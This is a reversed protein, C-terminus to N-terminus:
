TKEWIHRGWLPKMDMIWCMQGCWRQTGERMLPEFWWMRRGCHRCTVRVRKCRWLLMRSEVVWWWRRFLVLRGTSPKGDPTVVYERKFPNQM